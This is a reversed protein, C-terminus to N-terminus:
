LFKRVHCLGPKHFDPSQKINKHQNCFLSRWNQCLGLTFCTRVGPESEVGISGRHMQVFERTLHLGIGTGHMQGSTFFRDFVVPLNEPPIGVGNDEVSLVAEGENEALRITVRGGEPTFKFANSLLNALAKELKDMDIWLPLTAMDHQFTYEIHKDSALNDFYSKVDEVFVVMDVKSVRMGMKNSEIKRFDLLQDIVRKLRGANKRIIRIDDAFAGEPADQAMKDLPGLILTLPTKVEHSVNTFFSLKQATVQEIRQNAVTLEEKQRQVQLARERLMRNKQRIKRNVRVVYFALGGLAVALVLIVILAVYIANFHEHLKALTARQREIQGEYDLLRESQLYLTGANSKDLLATSLAYRKMYPQGTLIQWAVKIATAGGTPYYFSAELKGQVVAEVGRGEGLLGNVGIFRVHPLAEPARREFADRAGLAMMDNHAFVVDIDRLSDLAMVAECAENRFWNGEAELLRAGPIVSMVDAFGQHREIASSSGRRGWVELVKAHKGIHNAVYMGITRGIEYNDAGIFATYEESKIKWDLIITPIGARYAEVAAPTVPDMENASIILLDVKDRIFARIQESQLANDQGADAVELTMGPYRLAELRMDRVM